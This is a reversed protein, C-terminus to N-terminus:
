QKIFIEQERGIDMECWYAATLRYVGNQEKGSLERSLITMEGAMDAQTQELQALAQEKAEVRSLQKTSERYFLLEERCLALPTSLGLVTIPTVTRRQEYLGPWDKRWYLPLEAALVRISFRVAGEGTMERVTQTLPVEASLEYKTRAMIKARAHKIQTKGKADEIIGSVLLDGEVVSDGAKVLRQGEYAEVSLLHGTSRAVINCPKDDDLYMEPPMVRERVEVTV